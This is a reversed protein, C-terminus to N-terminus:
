LNGNRVSESEGLSIVCLVRALVCVDLRLAITVYVRARAKM